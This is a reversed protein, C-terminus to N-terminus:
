RTSSIYQFKVGILSPVRIPLHHMHNYESDYIQAM